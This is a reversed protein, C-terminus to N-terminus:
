HKRKFAVVAAPCNFNFTRWYSFRPNFIRKYVGQGYFIGHKVRSRIKRRCRCLCWSWKSVNHPM